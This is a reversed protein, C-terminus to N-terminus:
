WSLLSSRLSTSFFAVLFLLLHVITAFNFCVNFKTECRAALEGVAGLARADLRRMACLTLFGAAPPEFWFSATDPERTALLHLLHAFTRPFKGCSIRVDVVFVQFPRVVLLYRTGVNWMELFGSSFLSWAGLITGNPQGFFCSWMRMSANWVTSEDTGSAGSYLLTALRSSAFDLTWDMWRATSPFSRCCTTSWSKRSWEWFLTCWSYSVTSSM